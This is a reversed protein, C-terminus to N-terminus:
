DGCSPPPSETGTEVSIKESVTDKIASIVFQLLDNIEVQSQQFEAVLPIGDIEAQLRAIEAEIKAVMSKNGFSEFAVIEKQKKKMDAILGQVREHRQIKHEAQQFQQVEESHSILAALEHAKALIAEREILDRGAEAAPEPRSM